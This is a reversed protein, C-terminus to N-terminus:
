AEKRVPNVSWPISPAVAAAAVLTGIAKITNGAVIAGAGAGLMGGTAVTGTVMVILKAREFDETQRKANKETKASKAVAEDLEGRMQAVEDRLLANEELSATAAKSAAYSSAVAQDAELRCGAYRDLLQTHAQIVLDHDSFRRNATTMFSQLKSAMEELERRKSAEREEMIMVYSAAGMTEDSSNSDARDRSSRDFHLASSAGAAAAAGSM